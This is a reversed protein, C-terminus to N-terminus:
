SLTKHKRTQYPVERFGQATPLHTPPRSPARSKHQMFQKEMEQLRKEVEALQQNKETLEERVKVLKELKQEVETIQQHMQVM